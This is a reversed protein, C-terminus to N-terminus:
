YLNSLFLHYFFHELVSQKWFWESFINYKEQLPLQKVVLLEEFYIGAM